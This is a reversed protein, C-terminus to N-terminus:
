FNEVQALMEKDDLLLATSKDFLKWYEKPIVRSLLYPIDEVILKWEEEKYDSKKMDNLEVIYAGMELEGSSMNVDKTKPIKLKVIVDRGEHSITLAREITDKQFLSQIIDENSLEEKVIEAKSNLFSNMKNIMAATLASNKSKVLNLRDKESKDLLSSNGVSVLIRSLVLLNDSDKLDGMSPEKFLIKLGGVLSYEKTIRPIKSKGVIIEKNDM